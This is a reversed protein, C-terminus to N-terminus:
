RRPATQPCILWAQRAPVAAEQGPLGRLADHRSQQRRVRSKCSRLFSSDKTITPPPGV